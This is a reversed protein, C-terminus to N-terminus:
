ERMHVIILLLNSPKPVMELGISRMMVCTSEKGKNLQDIKQGKVGHGPSQFVRLIDHTRDAADYEGRQRKQIQYAEFISYITSRQTAFTSQTRESLAQYTERELYGRESAVTGESGKIIRDFTLFLPFHSDGLESFSRPLDNRWNDEDDLDVLNDEDSQDRKALVHKRLDEPSQSAIKLSESLKLFYEEVKGALVRSKTVFIQRPKPMNSSNMQFTREIFLMKFLM